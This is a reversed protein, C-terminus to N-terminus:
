GHIVTSAFFRNKMRDEDDDDVADDLLQVFIPQKTNIGKLFKGEPADPYDGASRVVFKGGEVEHVTTELVGRERHMAQTQEVEEMTDCMRSSLSETVAIMDALPNRGLERQVRQVCNITDLIDMVLTTFTAASVAGGGDEITQLKQIHGWLRQNKIRTMLQEINLSERNVKHLLTMQNHVALTKSEEALISAVCLNKMPVGNSMFNGQFGMKYLLGLLFVQIDVLADYLDIMDEHSAFEIEHFNEQLKQIAEEAEEVESFANILQNRIGSVNFSKFSSFDWRELQGKLLQVDVPTEFQRNIGAVLLLADQIYDFTQKMSYSINSLVANKFQM